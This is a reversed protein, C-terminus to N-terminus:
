ALTTARELDAPPAEIPCYRPREAIFIIRRGADHAHGIRQAPGHNGTACASLDHLVVGKDAARDVIRARAAPLQGCSETVLFHADHPVEFVSGTLCECSGFVDAGHGKRTPEQGGTPKPTEPFGPPGAPCALPHLRRSRGGNASSRDM